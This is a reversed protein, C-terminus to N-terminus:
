LGDILIDSFDRWRALITDLIAAVHIEKAHPVLTHQNSGAAALVSLLLIDIRCPTGLERLLELEGGCLLVQYYSEPGSM